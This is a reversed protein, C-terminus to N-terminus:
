RTAALEESPLGAFVDTEHLESQNRSIVLQYFEDAFQPAVEDPIALLPFDTTIQSRHARLAERKRMITTRCDVTTTVLHDPTLFPLDEPDDAGFPPEMGAAKAFEIARKMSSVPFATYYLKQVEWPPGAEPYLASYAAEVALLTARHTQIHDPHGYGGNGDYTIVVQPKFRRIHEVLKGVDENLPAVWFAQDATNTEAGAMGSDGYGLFHIETIGLIRAAERMEDQRIEALRPRHTEEPMDPAFITALKGDTCTINCTAIGRDACLSLLGGMTITEDDPHAHVSMLRLDSTM